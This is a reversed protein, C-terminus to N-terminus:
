IAHAAIRSFTEYAAGFKISEILPRFTKVWSVMAYLSPLIPKKQLKIATAETTNVDTTLLTGVGSVAGKSIFYNKQKGVASGAVDFVM